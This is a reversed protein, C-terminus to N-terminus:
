FGSFSELIKEEKSIMLQILIHFIYSKRIVVSNQIHMTQPLCIVWAETTYVNPKSNLFLM